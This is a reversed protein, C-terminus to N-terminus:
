DPFFNEDIAKIEFTQDARVGINHEIMLQTLRAGDILIVRQTVTEVYKLADKTFASTTVFVGKNAKNGVLAGVFNRVDASGVTKGEGYKKAQVYIIELGLKDLAVVGDVGGDGSKGLHTGPDKSSGGYGMGVLLDVVLREFFAPSENVIKELLEGKLLELIEAHAENIRERATTSEDTSEVATAITDNQDSSTAAKKRNKFAIYGPYKGLDKVSLASPNQDLLKMGLNTIMFYGRRPREVLKAQALYSVAWAVRNHMTTQGGNPLLQEREAATLDFTDSLQETADKLRHEGTAALKLVPLM